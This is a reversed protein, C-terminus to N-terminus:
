VRRAHVINGLSGQIDLELNLFYQAIELSNGKKGCIVTDQDDNGTINKVKFNKYRQSVANRTMRYIVINCLTVVHNAMGLGYGREAKYKIDDDQIFFNQFIKLRRFRRDGTFRELEEAVVPFLDPSNYTIGCKKIDRLIHYGKTYVVDNLRKEFSSSHLTVASEPVYQLIHRMSREIWRLSYNSSIDAIVTDRIGGPYVPV